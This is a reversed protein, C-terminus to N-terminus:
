VELVSSLVGTINYTILSHYDAVAVAPFEPLLAGPDQPGSAGSSTPTQAQPSGAGHPERPGWPM